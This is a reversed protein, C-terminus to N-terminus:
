TFESRNEYINWFAKVVDDIEKRTMPPQMLEHTFLEKEYLRETM